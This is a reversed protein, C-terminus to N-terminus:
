CSAFIVEFCIGDGEVSITKDDGFIGPIFKVLIKAFKFKVGHRVRNVTLLGTAVDDTM